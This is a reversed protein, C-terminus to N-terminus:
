SRTKPDHMPRSTRDAIESSIFEDRTGDASGRSTASSPAEGTRDDRDPDSPREGISEVKGEQVVHPVSPTRDAM